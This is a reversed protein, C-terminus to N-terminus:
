NVGQRNELGKCPWSYLAHDMAVVVAKGDAAFFSPARM